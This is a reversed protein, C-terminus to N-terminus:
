GLYIEYKDPEYGRLLINKWEQVQKIFHLQVLRSYEVIRASNKLETIANDRIKKQAITAYFGISLLVALVLAFMLLIKTRIRVKMM